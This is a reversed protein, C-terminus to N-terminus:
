EDDTSEEGEPACPMRQNEEADATPASATGQADTDDESASPDSSDRGMLESLMRDFMAQDEPSLSSHDITDTDAHEPSSLLNFVFAVAKLDGKAAKNALNRLIVQQLPLRKTKGGETIPIKQALVDQMQAQVSKPRRKRGKSNGSQGQKFQTEKPPRCYGVEYDPKPTEDDDRHTM